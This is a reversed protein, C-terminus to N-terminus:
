QKAKIDIYTSLFEEVAKGNFGNDQMMSILLEQSVGRDASVLDYKEVLWKIWEEPINGMLFNFIEKYTIFGDHNKDMKMLTDTIYAIDARSQNELYM